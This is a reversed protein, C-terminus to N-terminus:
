PLPVMRGLAENANPLKTKHLTTFRSRMNPHSADGRLWKMMLVSAWGFAPVV